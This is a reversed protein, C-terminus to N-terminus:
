VVQATLRRNAEAFKAHLTRETIGMLTGHHAVLISVIAEQSRFTSYPTGSPSRNLMVHLLAGIINLYTSEARPSIDDRTQQSLLRAYDKHLVEYTTKFEELRRSCSLYTARLLEREVILNQVLEIDIAPHVARELPDFLFEPRQDPYHRQIWTRLDVHRVTLEPNSLLAPDNCTLGRLGYPLDGHMMGDFIRDLTLHLHPWQAFQRQSLRNRGRLVRVIVSEHGVLGSWRVAAEVPTYFVKSNNVDTLDRM